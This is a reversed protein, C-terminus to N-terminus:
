MKDRSKLSGLKWATPCLYHHCNRYERDFRLRQEFLLLPMKNYQHEKQKRNSDFTYLFESFHQRFEAGFIFNNLKKSPHKNVHKNSTEFISGFLSSSKCRVVEEWWGIWEGCWLQQEGSLISKGGLYIWESLHFNRSFASRENWIRIPIRIVKNEKLM